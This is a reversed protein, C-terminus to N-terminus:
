LFGQRQRGIHISRKNALHLATDTLRRKCGQPFQRRRQFHFWRRQDEANLLPALSAADAGLGAPRARNLIRFFETPFFQAARRPTPAMTWIGPHVGLAIERGAMPIKQTGSSGGM